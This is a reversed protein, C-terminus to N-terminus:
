DTQINLNLKEKYNIPRMSDKLSPIIKLSFSAWMVEKIQHLGGEGYHVMKLSFFEKEM